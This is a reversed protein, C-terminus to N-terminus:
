RDGALFIGSPTKRKEHHSQLEELSIMAQVVLRQICNMDYHPDGCITMGKAYWRYGVRCIGVIITNEKPNATIMYGQPVDQIYEAIQKNTYRLISEYYPNKTYRAKQALQAEAKHEKEQTQRAEEKGKEIIWKAAKVDDEQGMADLEEGLLEAQKKSTQRDMGETYWIM